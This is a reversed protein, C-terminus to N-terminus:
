SDMLSPHVPPLRVVAQGDPDVLDTTTVPRPWGDKHYRYAGWRTRARDLSVATSLQLELGGSAADKPVLATGQRGTGRTLTVVRTRATALDQSRGLRMPWVPRRLVQAWWEIRDTLWLTLEVGVLFHRIVPKPDPKNGKAALPHYTELDEGAAASRFTMGFRTGPPVADWGGAAGALLGGVTAPPPCPLGYQVAAYLPNRFSAIPATVTVELANVAGTM